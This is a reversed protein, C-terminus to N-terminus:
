KREGGHKKDPKAFFQRIPDVVKSTVIRIMWENDELGAELLMAALRSENTKMRKALEQIKAWSEPKLSVTVRNREDPM